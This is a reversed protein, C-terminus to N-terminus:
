HRGDPWHAPIRILLDVDQRTDPTYAMTRYRGALGHSLQSFNGDRAVAGHAGAGHLPHGADPGPLSRGPGQNRVPTDASAGTDLTTVERSTREGPVKGQAPQGATVTVSSVPPASVCVRRAMGPVSGLWSEQVNGTVDARTLRFVPPHPTDGLPKMSAITRGGRLHLPDLWNKQPREDGPSSAKSEASGSGPRSSTPSIAALKRPTHHPISMTLPRLTWWLAM